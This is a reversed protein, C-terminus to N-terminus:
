HKIESGGQKQMLIPHRYNYNQDTMVYITGMSRYTQRQNNHDYNQFLYTDELVIPICLSMKLVFAVAPCSMTM